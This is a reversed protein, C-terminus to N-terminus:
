KLNDAPNCTAPTVFPNSNDSAPQAAGGPCRAVKGTQYGPGLNAGGTLGTAGLTTILAPTGGQISIRGYNGNADYYGTQKGGFGNVLGGVLDPTYPLLADIVHQTKILQSTLSIEAPVANDALAPAGQLTKTLSPLLATTKALVPRAAQAVPALRRLVDALPPTVPRLDRLAPKISVLADRVGGLVGDARNLLRPARQLADALRQRESAIARLATATDSIGNTIDESRSALAQSTTAGTQLLRSVAARDRTLEQALQDSSTLFPALYGFATNADKESGAFINAGSKIVGQLRKRTQPDLADFFTDLDIIPRTEATTLVGGDPIKEGTSPGPTLEVYRNAVSSLGVTRITATTGRHLPDWESDSIHLELDAAGDNTLSINSITGVKRGAVEVLGGKVVQGADLFRAHITYTGGGTLILLVAVVAVALALVAILRSPRM